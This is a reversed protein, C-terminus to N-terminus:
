RLYGVEITSRLCEQIGEINAVSAKLRASDQAEGLVTVIMYM